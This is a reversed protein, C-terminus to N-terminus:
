GFFFRTVKSTFVDLTKPYIEIIQLLRPFYQRAEVCGNRMADMLSTVMSVPFANISASDFIKDEEATLIFSSIM